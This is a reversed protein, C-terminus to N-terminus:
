SPPSSFMLSRATKKVFQYAIDQANGTKWFEPLTVTEAYQRSEATLFEISKRGIVENREYGFVELWRDSVTVLNGETDISHMMAPTKTYLTRFREESERLVEEARKRNTINSIFAVGHLRGSWQVASLGIEVPFVTGDKRRGFLDRGRGMPRAGPAAFFADREMPHADRWREPLLTEIRSVVLDERSYAFLEETRANILVITGESDIVVIAEPAHEILPSVHEAEPPTQRAGTRKAIAESATKPKRPTKTGAM